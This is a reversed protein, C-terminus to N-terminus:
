ENQNEIVRGAISELYSEIVVSDSDSVALLLRQRNGSVDRYGISYYTTKKGGMDIPVFIQPPNAEDVEKDKDSVEPRLNEALNLAVTAKDQQNSLVRRNITGIRKLPIEGWVSENKLRWKIESPLLQLHCLVFRNSQDLCRVKMNAQVSAAFIFYSVFCSMILFYKKM